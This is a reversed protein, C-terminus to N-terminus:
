TFLEVEGGVPKEIVSRRYSEERELITQNNTRELKKVLVQGTRPFFYVKRPFVDGLDEAWVPINEEQMFRRVFAINQAGIDSLGKMVQGGGFTKAVLRDRKAGNRLLTNILLEMAGVGYRAAYFVDEMDGRASHEVQPSATRGLSPRFRQSQGQQKPERPGKGASTEGKPEPAETTPAVPSLSVNRGAASRTSRFLM